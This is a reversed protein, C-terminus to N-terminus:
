STVGIKTSYQKKIWTEYAQDPVAEAENYQKIVRELSQKLSYRPKFGLSELKSSDLRYRFDHGPRDTVFTILKECAGVKILGKKELLAGLMKILDLNAREQGSGINYCAGREGKELVLDVGQAHDAIDLWERIQQGNGYVPLPEEALMRKLMLPVLKEPYQFPGINNCAHSITYSLGYTKGFARVMHDSAAKSASYPSNPEYADTELFAGSKISGFVEDTSIHHFHCQSWGKVVQLLTVTKEVNEVVFLEPEHISKDVHTEAAFHVVYDFSYQSGLKQLLTRDGIDGQVFQVRTDETLLKLREKCLEHKLLDLIVISGKFAEQELKYQVFASGMFGAGGTVLYTSSNSLSMRQM